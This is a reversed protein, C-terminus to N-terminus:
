TENSLEKFIGYMYISYYASGDHYGDRVIGELAFGLKEHIRISGKNCGLVRGCIKYLNLDAFGYRLAASCLMSGSGKRADTSTHFSWDAIRGSISESFSVFGSPHGEIEFILLHTLSNKSAREYWLRHEDWPIEAQNFMYRRVRWQNRWLWVKELDDMNMPRISSYVHSQDIPM